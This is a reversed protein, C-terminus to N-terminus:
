AIDEDSLRQPRFVSRAAWMTATQLHTRALAISRGDPLIERELTDLERLFREELVKLRNVAEIAAEEQTSRYGKVPLGQHSM